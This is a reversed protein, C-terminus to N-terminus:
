QSNVDDAVTGVPQSDQFTPSSIPSPVEAVIALGEKGAHLIPLTAPNAAIVPPVTQSPEANAQMM